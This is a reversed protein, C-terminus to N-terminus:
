NRHHFARPDAALAREYGAHGAFRQEVRRHHARQRPLRRLKAGGVRRIDVEAICPSGERPRHRPAILHRLPAVVRRMRSRMMETAGSIEDVTEGRIRLAMLFAGMQAQSAHGETMIELAGRMEERSLTKADAVKHILAKLTAAPM